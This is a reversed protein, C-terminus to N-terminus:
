EHAVVRGQEVAARSRKVKEELWENYGILHNIAEELLEDKARHTRRALDDLKAVAADGIHLEM